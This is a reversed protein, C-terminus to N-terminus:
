ETTIASLVDVRAASRAPVVAAAVGAVAAVLVFALVEPVPVRFLNVGDSHLADVLVWGFALGLVIGLVTGLLAVIVAEVRVASRLQSRSLGLARLLGIERRREIVSLALTNVIGFLAIVVALGLLATVLGVMQQFQNNQRTIFGAKTEVRVQPYGRLVREVAALARADSVGPASRALIQGISSVQEPFLTALGGSTFLVDGTIGTPDGIVAAVTFDRRAVQASAMPVVSGPRLHWTEALGTTVAISGSDMAALDGRLTPISVDRGYSAVDTGTIAVKRSTGAAPLPLEIAATGSVLAAVDTVQPVAAIRAAVSPSLASAGNATLVLDAHLGSRLSADSSAEVSHALVAISTMLTLGIMLAAATSATRRPHRMANSRGLKGPVGGVASLPWGIAGALPRVVLPVLASLGLFGVLLGFGAAEARTGAHGARGGGAHLAYVVSIAGAVVLVAGIVRRLPARRDADVAPEDRMAAVPATRSGRWAPVLSAGATAVTGVVLSVVVTRLEVVPTVSPFDVGAATLLSRLGIALLVGVGVGVASAVLGVAVSEALVATVLQRRNAGLCRLLALERTRQTILISFTNFILFVAVFLAVGAFVLLVDGFISLGRDVASTTAAVAQAETEVKYGSGLAASVRRALVGPTVGPEASAVVDYLRGPEGLVAQAEPLTLGVITAGALSGATGYGVIGVVRYRRAAGVGAVTITQGIGIHDRGATTADLDAQNPGEPYRGHRLTLAQLSAVNGVSFVLQLSVANPLSRGGPGRVTATGVAMGDAAEVGPVSAVRGVTADALSLGHNGLGSANAFTSVVSRPTVVVATGTQSHGIAGTIAARLTDTLVYTGAVFGVGLTVAVATAVLRVRHAM